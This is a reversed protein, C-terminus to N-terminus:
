YQCVKSFKPLKKDEANAFADMVFEKQLIKSAIEQLFKNNM